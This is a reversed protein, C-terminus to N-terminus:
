RKSSEPTILISSDSSSSFTTGDPFTINTETGDRQISLGQWHVEVPWPFSNTGWVALKEPSFLRIGVLELFLNLPALGALANRAGAPRGDKMNYFPFFGGYDSLGLTIAWMLQSFFAAAQETRGARALGQLILTNWLVNSRIALQQPLELLSQWTELLGFRAKAEVPDFYKALLSSMQTEDLDGSRIPLLCTIDPQSFNATELLFHDEPKLGEVTITQISKFLNRTTIHARGMVWRIQSSKVNERISEGDQDRGIFRIRCVRTHEDNATLHLQLRQPQTFTKDITQEGQVQGRFNLERSPAQHSDIDLYTFTSLDENWTTMMQERLTKVLSEYKKKAAKEGLIEAIRALATVEQLLIALLAPSEACRIDLGQGTEEWIDFNFLGTDMQLQRPDELAPTADKEPDYGKPLWTDINKYLAPFADALYSEDRAIEFLLLHLQALLPCDHFPKSFAITDIPSFIEGSETQRSLLNRLLVAYQDRYAPLLVQALHSAELLTLDDLRSGARPDSRADDPLRSRIFFSKTSHQEAFWHSQAQVQAFRFAQDWAANGSRVQITRSAHYMVHNQVTVRWPTATVKRATDLSAERSHKTVLAWTLRRSQHPSLRVPTSLAPYPSSIAAPGGTMFLVPCLDGTEGSIIQNIGDQDPRTPIGGPMPVLVAALDFNLSLAEDGRNTVEIGGVLTHAAPAFVDFQIECGFDPEAQVRISDPTYQTIFPPKCFSAARAYRTREIQFSPFLRMSKARLGYTTQVCFPHIEHQGFELEWVQDEEPHFSSFAGDTALTFMM